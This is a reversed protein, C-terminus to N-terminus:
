SDGGEGTLAYWDDILDDDDLSPYGSYLERSRTNYIFSQTCPDNLYQCLAWDGHRASVHMPLTVHLMGSEILRRNEM